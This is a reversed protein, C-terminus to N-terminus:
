SCIPKELHQTNFLTVLPDNNLPNAKFEASKVSKLYERYSDQEIIEAQKKDLGAQIHTVAAIIKDTLPKKRGRLAIM